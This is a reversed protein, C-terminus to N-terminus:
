NKRQTGRRAEAILQVSRQQESSYGYNKFDLGYEFVKTSFNLSALLLANYYFEGYILLARDRQLIATILKKGQWSRPIAEHLNQYATNAPQTPLLVEPLRPLQNSDFWNDNDTINNPQSSLLILEFEQTGSQVPVATDARFPPADLTLVTLDDINRIQESQHIAASTPTAVANGASPKAQSNLHILWYVLIISSLALICTGVAWIIKTNAVEPSGTSEARPQSRDDSVKEQEQRNLKEADVRARAVEQMKRQAEEKERQEREKDAAISAQRGKRQLEYIKEFAQGFLSPVDTLQPRQEPAKAMLHNILQEIAIPLEPRLNRIPPPPETLQLRVLGQFSSANFPLKGTLMEYLMVGLSYVDSRGDIQGGVQLQEPSAYHPTGMVQSVPAGM